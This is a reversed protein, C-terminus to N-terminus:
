AAKAITPTLAAVPPKGAEVKDHLKIIASLAVFFVAIAIRTIM